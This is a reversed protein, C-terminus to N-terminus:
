NLFYSVRAEAQKRELEKQRSKKVWDKVDNDSDSDDGLGKVDRLKREIERKEKREALRYLLLMM